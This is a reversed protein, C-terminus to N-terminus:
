EGYIKIKRYKNRKICFEIAAERDTFIRYFEDKSVHIDGSLIVGVTNTAWAGTVSCKTIVFPSNHKYWKKLHVYYVEEGCSFPITYKEERHEILVGDWTRLEPQILKIVWNM